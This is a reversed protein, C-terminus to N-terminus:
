VKESAKLKLIHAELAEIKRQSIYLQAIGIDNSLKSIVSSISLVQDQLGVKQNLAGSLHKEWSALQAKAEDLTLANPGNTMTVKNEDKSEM